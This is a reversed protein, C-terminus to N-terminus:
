TFFEEFVFLTEVRDTMKRHIVNGSTSEALHALMVSINIDSISTLTNFAFAALDKQFFSIKICQDTDDCDQTEATYFDYTNADDCFEHSPPVNYREFILRKLALRADDEIGDLPVQSICHYCSLMRVGNLTSLILCVLLIMM